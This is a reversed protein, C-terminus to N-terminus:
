RRTWSSSPVASCFSSLTSTWRTKVSRRSVPTGRPTSPRRAHSWASGYTMRWRAVCAACAPASASSARSTAKRAVASGCRRSAASSSAPSCAMACITRRPRGRQGSAAVGSRAAYRSEDGVLLFARFQSGCEVCTEQIARASGSPASPMRTTAGCSEWVGRAHGHAGPSRNRHAVRDDVLPPVSPEIRRQSRREPSSSPGGNAVSCGVITASAGTTSFCATSSATCLQRVNPVLSTTTRPSGPVITPPGNGSSRDGAHTRNRSPRRSTVNFPSSTRM